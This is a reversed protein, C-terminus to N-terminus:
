SLSRNKIIGKPVCQFIHGLEARYNIFFPKFRFHDDFSSFFIFFSPNCASASNQKNSKENLATRVRSQSPFANYSTDFFYPLLQNIEIIIM